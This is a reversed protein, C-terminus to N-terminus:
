RDCGSQGDIAARPFRAGLITNQEDLIVVSVNALLEQGSDQSVVRIKAKLEGQPDREFQVRRLRTGGDPRNPLNIELPEGLRFPYTAVKVQETGVQPTVENPKAEPRIRRITWFRTQDLVRSHGLDILVSKEREPKEPVTPVSAAITPRGGADLLVLVLRDTAATEDAISIVAFLKHWGHVKADRDVRFLVERVGVGPGGAPIQIRKGLQFPFVALPRPEPEIAGRGELDAQSTAIQAM